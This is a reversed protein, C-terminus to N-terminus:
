RRLKRKSFNYGMIVLWVYCVTKPLMFMGVAPIDKAFLVVPLYFVFSLAVALWAFKFDKHMSLYKYLLIVIIVGIAVFPINRYIGWALPANESFWDNQPFCLLVIRTIALFVIINRWFNSNQVRSLTCIFYFLLVYFITMTFSTVLTGFGLAVANENGTIAAIIRPILHFADGGVLVLTMVAFLRAGRKTSKLILVGFIPTVVLYAVCFIAEMIQGM